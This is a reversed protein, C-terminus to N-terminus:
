FQKLQHDTEIRKGMSVRPEVSYGLASYFSVVDENGAIIQLNIKVCGRFRLAEEAAAMLRTGIGQRRDDPSVCLSYIWGRHGDYGAMVTGVVVKDAVAVFFLPEPTDMMKDIVLAPRNHAASYAFVDNWLAIVGARHAPNAYPKIVLSFSM